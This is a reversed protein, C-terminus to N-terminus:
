ELEVVIVTDPNLSTNPPPSQRTVWGDGYMQVHIDDRLLLPLLQRKSLGVLNPVTDEVRPYATHPISIAGSHTIQPNRGRPIGLYNILEEAAERIPPAAIRGALFETGKPKIIVLYLVLSPSEAPLFAICSSIFDTKSYARTSPDIVEATGTKVALSIDRINARWGTGLMSTADVMYARMAQATEPRLVQRSRGEQFPTIKGDPSVTHSVIRPSVMRGDNAIASAAQLMQLASVSIEQGMAITPKSRESWRESSRFIGMTEGSNGARTRSGFGLERLIEDFSARGMLDTAYAVGANCSNVIIDRPTVRGHNGLCNIVIREGRDTIREYRGNCVFVSNDNITQRDMLAALSFIKFVSGPEYSWLAPRDMLSAESPNNINNPNYSPLSASGLIDGTRPDMAMFMVAEANNERLVRSAINELIFQVNIDLTLFVQSGNQRKLTGPLSPALSPSLDRNFAFEVGAIGERSTSTVRGALEDSDSINVTTFGLIQAALSGEPYVRSLMPEIGVGRLRGQALAAEVLKITPDDVQKKLYIFNSRSNDIREQIEAAPIELIPSLERALEASNTNNRMSPRWLTINGVRTEMALIRGNRDLIPGRGSVLETRLNSRPQQEVIMVYGYNLIIWLTIVILIAAIFVFRGGGFRKLNIM